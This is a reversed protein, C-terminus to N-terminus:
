KWSRAYVACQWRPWAVAVPWIEPLDRMEIEHVDHWGAYKFQQIMLEPICEWHHQDGDWRTLGYKLDDMTVDGDLIGETRLLQSARNIDPGVAVMTGDDTMLPLLRALLPVVNELPLHELVHGAYVHQFSKKSWPLPGRLDVIEDIRTPSELDVNWWGNAYRDACGLNLKTGIM